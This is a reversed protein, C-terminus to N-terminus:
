QLLGMRMARSVLHARNQADLKQCVMTLYHNVTHESIDLIIAIDASTKGAATWQICEKERPSLSKQISGNTVNFSKLRDYILSSLFSLEMLEMTIPPPRDGAFSVAGRQGQATHVPFYVGNNLGFDKYLGIALARREPSLNAHISEVHWVLPQTSRLLIEIVDSDQLFRNADYANVLEPPWNSVMSLASLTFPNSQPLEISKFHSFGFERSISKLLRFVDYATNCAQILPLYDTKITVVQANSGKEARKAEQSM